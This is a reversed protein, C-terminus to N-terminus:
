VQGQDCLIDDINCQWQNQKLSKKGKGWPLSGVINMDMSRKASCGCGCCALSNNKYTARKPQSCGRWGQVGVSPAPLSLGTM